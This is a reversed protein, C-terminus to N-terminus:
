SCLTDNEFKALWKNLTIVKLKYKNGILRSMVYWSMVHSSMIHHSMIHCSMTQHPMTHCSMTHYPMTHHRICPMANWPMAHYWPTDDTHRHMANNMTPTHETSVTYTTNTYRTVICNQRKGPHKESLHSLCEICVHICTCWVCAYLIGCWVYWHYVRPMAPCPM